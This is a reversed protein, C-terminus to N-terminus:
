CSIALSILLVLSISCSISSHCWWYLMAAPDSKLLLSGNHQSLKIPFKGRHKGSNNAVLLRKWKWNLLYFPPFTLIFYSTRMTLTSPFFIYISSCVNHSLGQKELWIILYCNRIEWHIEKRKKILPFGFGVLGSIGLFHLRQLSWVEEM